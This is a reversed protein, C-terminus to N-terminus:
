VFCLTFDHKAEKAAPFRASGKSKTDSTNRIRM